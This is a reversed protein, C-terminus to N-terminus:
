KLSSALDNWGALLNGIVAESVGNTSVFRVNPSVQVGIDKMTVFPSTPGALEVGAQINGPRLGLEVAEKQQEPELLFQMFAFAAKKEREGMLVVKKAASDYVANLVYYPNDAMINRAPYVIKYSTNLSKKALDAYQIALNEYSVVGSVNSQPGGVILQERFLTGTSPSAFNNLSKGDAASFMGKVKGWFAANRPAIANADLGSRGANTFEYGMLLLSSFGSNSESPKTLFFTTYAGDAAEAQQAKIMGEFTFIKDDTANPDDKHAADVIKKYVEPWMVFVLPIRVLSNAQAAIIDKAGSFGPATLGAAAIARATRQVVYDRYAASAPSWANLVCSNVGSGIRGGNKEIADIGELSGSPVLKITLNKHDAGKAFKEVEKKLWTEKETGYAICIEVKEPFLKQWQQTAYTAATGYMEVAQQKIEDYTEAKAVGVPASMALVTLAAFGKVSPM